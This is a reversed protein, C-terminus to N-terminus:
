LSASFSEPIRQHGVRDPHEPEGFAESGAAGLSQQYLVGSRGTGCIVDLELARVEERPLILEDALHFRLAHASVAETDAVLGVNAPEKAESREEVPSREIDHVRV